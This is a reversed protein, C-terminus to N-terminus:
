AGELLTRQWSMLEAGGREPDRALATLAAKSAILTPDIELETAKHDRFAKLEDFRKLEADTSRRGTRELRRPWDEPIIELAEHIARNVGHRRRSTLYQPVKWGRGEPNGAQEALQILDEHKLIFYPPRAANIAEAERWHWLNRLVVLERPTLRSSGKIRWVMNEDVQEPVSAEAILRECSERHWATRGLEELRAALLTALEHLHATDSRAYDEMRPTLPRRAWNATQSGKELEVGLFQRALDQLGFATCGILRGALMTDFVQHPIFGYHRRLLRLDYDAGHLILERKRLAKWIPSLDFGALPDVLFEGAPVSFQILCIKEPYAHRSDAETDLALWDAQKILPLFEQLGSETNIM